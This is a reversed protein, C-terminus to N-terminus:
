RSLSIRVESRRRNRMSTAQRFAPATAWLVITAAAVWAHSGWQMPEPGMGGWWNIITSTNGLSWDEPYWPSIVRVKRLPVGEGSCFFNTWVTWSAWFNASFVIM